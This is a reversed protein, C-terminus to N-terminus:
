GIIMAKKVIEIDEQKRLGDFRLRETRYRDRCHKIESEFGHVYLKIWLRYLNWRDNPLLTNINEIAQAQEEEMTESKKIEHKIRQKISKRKNKQVKFGDADVDLSVINNFYIRECFKRRDDNDVETEEDSSEDIIRQEEMERVVEEDMEQEEYAEQVSEIMDIDEDNNNENNEHPNAETTMAYGLWNLLGENFSRGNTLEYLQGHHAPNLTRIVNQLEDGLITNTIHEIDKELDSIQEQIFKLRFLSESRSKHIFTPVKRESKM